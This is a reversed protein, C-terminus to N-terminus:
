EFLEKRREGYWESKKLKEIVEPFVEYQNEIGKDESVTTAKDVMEYTLTEDGMPISAEYCAYRDYYWFQLGTINYEENMRDVFEMVTKVATERSEEYSIEDSNYLYCMQIHHCPNGNDYSAYNQTVYATDMMIIHPMDALIEEFKRGAERATELYLEERGEDYVDNGFYRITIDDNIVAFSSYLIPHVVDIKEIGYHERAYKKLAIEAKIVPFLIVYVFWILIVALIILIIRKKKM